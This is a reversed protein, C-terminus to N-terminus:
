TEEAEVRVTIRWTKGDPPSADLLTQAGPGTVQIKMKSPPTVVVVQEGGKTVRSPRIFEQLEM